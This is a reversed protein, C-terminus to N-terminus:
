GEVPDTKAFVATLAYPQQPFTCSQRLFPGRFLDANATSGEPVNLRPSLSYHQITCPLKGDYKTDAEM